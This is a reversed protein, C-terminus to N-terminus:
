ARGYLITVVCEAGDILRLTPLSGYRYPGFQLADALATGAPIVQTTLAESEDEEPIDGAHALYADASGSNSISVYVEAYSGGTPPAEDAATLATTVLTNLNSSANAGSATIAEPPPLQVYAPM